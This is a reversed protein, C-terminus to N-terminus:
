LISKSKKRSNQLKLSKIQIETYTETKQARSGDFYILYGTRLFSCVLGIMSQGPSVITLVLCQLYHQNVTYRDSLLKLNKM